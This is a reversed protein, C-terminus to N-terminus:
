GQEAQLGARDGNNYEQEAALWVQVKAVYLGPTQLKVQLNEHDGGMEDAQEGHLAKHANIRQQNRNYCEETVDGGLISFAGCTECKFDPLIM